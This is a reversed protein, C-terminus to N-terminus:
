LGVFAKYLECHGSASIKYEENPLVMFCDGKKITINTNNGNVVAGCDIVIFIEPSSSLATYTKGASLEIKSIDFDHVPCQYNKELAGINEDKM